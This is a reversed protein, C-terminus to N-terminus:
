AMQVLAGMQLLLGQCPGDDRRKEREMIATTFTHMTESDVGNDNKVKPVWGWGVGVGGWTL